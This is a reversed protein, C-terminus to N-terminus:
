FGTMVEEVPFEPSLADGNGQMGDIPATVSGALLPQTNVVVVEIEPNMYTKKM